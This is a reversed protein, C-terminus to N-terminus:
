SDHIVFRKLYELKVNRFKLWLDRALGVLWCRTGRPACLACHLERLERSSWGVSMVCSERLERVQDGSLAHYADSQDESVEDVAFVVM